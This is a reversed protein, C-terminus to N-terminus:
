AGREEVVRGNRRGLAVARSGTFTADDLWLRMSRQAVLWLGWWGLRRLWETVRVHHGVHLPHADVVGGSGFQRRLSRM